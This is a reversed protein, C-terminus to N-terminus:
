KDHQSCTSARIWSYDGGRRRKIKLNINEPNSWQKGPENEMCGWKNRTRACHHHLLFPQTPFWTPPNLLHKLRSQQQYPSPAPFATNRFGTLSQGSVSTHEAWFIKETQLSSKMISPSWCHYRTFSSGESYWVNPDEMRRLRRTWLDTGPAQYRSTDLTFIYLLSSRCVGTWKM